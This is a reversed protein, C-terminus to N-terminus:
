KIIKFSLRKGDKGITSIIYVGKKLQNIAESFSKNNSEESIILTGNVLYISYSCIFDDYVCDIGAEDSVIIVCIDSHNGDISSVTVISSGNSLATILGDTVTAVQPNSSNWSLSKDTADSPSVIATLQHTESKTMNVEKETIVVSEVHKVVNIKCIDSVLGDNAQVVIFSSGYSNATVKGYDDVSAVSPNTSTWKVSKDSADEPLVTAHLEITSNLEIDAEKPSVVVSQVKIIVNVSCQTSLGSIRDRCIISCSGSNLGTVIGNTNITAVNADSTEWVIDVEANLPKVNPILERSQGVGINIINESLSLGTAIIKIDNCIPISPHKGEGLSYICIHRTPTTNFQWNNQTINYTTTQNNSKVYLIGNDDCTGHVYLSESNIINLVVPPCSQYRHYPLSVGPILDWVAEMDWSLGQYFAKSKM